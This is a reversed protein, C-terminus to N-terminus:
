LHQTSKTQEQPIKSQHKKKLQLARVPLLPVVQLASPKLSFLQLDQSSVPKLKTDKKTSIKSSTNIINTTLVSSYTVPVTHGLPILKQLKLINLDIHPQGNISSNCYTNSGHNSCPSM